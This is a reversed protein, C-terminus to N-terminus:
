IEAARLEETTTRLRDALIRSVNRMLKTALKPNSRFLHELDDRALSYVVSYEEAVADASRPRSEVLVMEGFMVGPSLTVLRRSEADPDTKKLPLKITIAGQALLFMQDGKDGERFLYQGPAYSLRSLVASLLSTEEPTFNHTLGMRAIPMEAMTEDDPFARVVLKNECWELAYDTDRFWLEIPIVANVGMDGLFKGNPGAPTIHSLLLRRGTKMLRRSIQQLIHAGTADFEIVRKCDLIVYTTTLPLGEVELALQDATGFFLSGELELIV